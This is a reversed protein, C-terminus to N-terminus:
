HLILLVAESAGSIDLSICPMTLEGECVCVCVGVQVLLLSATDRLFSACAQSQMSPTSPNLM